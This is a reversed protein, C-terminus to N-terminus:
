QSRKHYSCYNIFKFYGLGEIHVRKGDSLYQSLLQSIISFMKTVDGKTMSTSVEIEKAFKKTTITGGPVLRVHYNNGEENEGQSPKEYIAYEIPM